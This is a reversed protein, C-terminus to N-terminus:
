EYLGHSYLFHDGSLSAKITLCIRRTLVITFTYLLSHLIHISINPHLPNIRAMYNTKSIAYSFGSGWVLGKKRQDLSHFLM